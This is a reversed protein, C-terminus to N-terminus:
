KKQWEDKEQLIARPGEGDLWAKAEANGQLYADWFATSLALIIRHHNPNRQGSEGPLPRDTFVSHEAGDLVLQYKNGSPLAPFVAYRAEMDAVGIPAGGLSAIDKTGTMLLWPIKV